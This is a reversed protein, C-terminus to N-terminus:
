SRGRIVRGHPRPRGPFGWRDDAADIRRCGRLRGTNPDLARTVDRFGQLELPRSCRDLLWEWGATGPGGLQSMGPNNRLSIQTSSYIALIWTEFAGILRITGQRLDHFLDRRAQV